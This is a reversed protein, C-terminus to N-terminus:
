GALCQGAKFCKCKCGFAMLFVTSQWSQSKIWTDAMKNRPVLTSWFLSKMLCWTWNILVLYDLVQNPPLHWHSWSSCQWPPLLESSLTSNFVAVFFAQWYHVAKVAAQGRSCPSLSNNEKQGKSANRKVSCDEAEECLSNQRCIPSIKCCNGLYWVRYAASFWM